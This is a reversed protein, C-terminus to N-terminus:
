GKLFRTENFTLAASDVVDGCIKGNEQRGDPTWIIQMRKVSGDESRQLVHYVLNRNNAAQVLDHGDFDFCFQMRSHQEKSNLWKLYGAIAGVIPLMVFCLDVLLATANHKPLGFLSSIPQFKWVIQVAIVIYILTPAALVFFWMTSKRGVAAYTGGISFDDQKRRKM